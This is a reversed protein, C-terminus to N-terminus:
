QRTGIGELGMAEFYVQTAAAPRFREVAQGAREPNAGSALTATIAEAMAVPDGPPVLRGYRGGDLIERPGGPCDTAVVPTGLALAEALVMGFGESRSSLVLVRAGAIWPYPNAQFGPLSARERIGLEVALRELQRRERGEGLIVLGLDLDRRDLLAFARLLTAFDKEAELRGVAILYPATPLGIPVRESLRRLAAAEVPPYAVRIRARAIGLHHAADRAAAESVAIVAACRGVRRLADQRRRPSAGPNALQAGVQGHLVAIIRCRRAALRCARQLPRLLRPRHVVVARPHARRLYWALPLAGWLPHLSSLRWRRVTAPLAALWPSFTRDVLVDVPLGQAAFDGAQQVITKGSGGLGLPGVLIAVPKRAPRHSSM